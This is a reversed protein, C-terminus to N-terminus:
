KQKEALKQLLSKNAKDPRALGRNLEKLRADRREAPKQAELMVIARTIREVRARKNRFRNKM